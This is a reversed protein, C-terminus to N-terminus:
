GETRYRVDYGGSNDSRPSDNVTFRVTGTSTATFSGHSGVLIWGGDGVRALLAGVPASESVSGSPKKGCSHGEPTSRNGDPDTTVQGKCGEEGEFGYGASGSASVIVKQGELVTGARASDATASVHVTGSVATRTPTLTTSRTPSPSATRARTSPPPTPTSTTRTTRTTRSTRSATTTRTASATRTTGTVSSRTPSLVTREALLAATPGTPSESGEQTSATPVAVITVSKTRDGDGTLLVVAGVVVTLLVVAGIVLPSGVRMIVNPSSPGEGSPSRNRLSAEYPDLIPHPLRPPLDDV